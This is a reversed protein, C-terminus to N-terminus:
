PRALRKLLAVQALAAVVAAETRLVHPGLSVPHFGRETFSELERDIFGGDPGIALVVRHTAIGDAQSEILATARPHLVLRLDGAPQDYRVVFPVFRRHIEIDPVWTHGGQECGLVADGRLADLEVRGSSFYSKDVRWANTLDFRRVGMAAAHRVLRHM